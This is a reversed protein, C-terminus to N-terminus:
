ALYSVTGDTGMKRPPAKGEKDPYGYWVVGMFKEEALAGVAEMIAEPAIGLAGTMWKTGVGEGKLSLCFNQIACAVAAHDELAKKTSIGGAEDLETAVSVVVWGPVGEFMAKKDENLAFIKAQTDPGAVRFRWPETLFHNPALIAAGFANDLLEKSVPDSKYKAVSRRNVLIDSQDAQITL